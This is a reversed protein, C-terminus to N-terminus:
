MYTAVLSTIFEPPTNISFNMERSVPEGPTVNQLGMNGNPVVDNLSIRQEQGDPKVILGQFNFHLFKGAKAAKLLPVIILDDRVVSETVTLTFAYGTQIFQQTPNGVFQMETGLVNANISYNQLELFPVNVGDPGEIFLCGDTGNMLERTDLTKGIAM